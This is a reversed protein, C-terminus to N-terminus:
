RFAISLKRAAFLRKGNEPRCSDFGFPGRTDQVTGFARHGGQQSYSTTYNTISVTRPQVRNATVSLRRAFQM